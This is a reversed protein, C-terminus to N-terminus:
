QHKKINQTKWKNPQKPKKINAQHFQFCEGDIPSDNDSVSYEEESM